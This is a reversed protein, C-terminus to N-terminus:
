APPRPEGPIPWRGTRERFAIASLIPELAFMRPNASLAAGNSARVRLIPQGNSEIMRYGVIDAYRFHKEVGWVSRFFVEDPEAIVYFNRHLALFAVGGVAIAVSAIRMATADDDPPSGFAVLSMLAGVALLIWGAIPVIKPMRVRGPAGKARNPRRSLWVALGAAGATVAAGIAIRLLAAPDM